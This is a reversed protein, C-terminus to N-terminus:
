RGGFTVRVGARATLPLAPYGFSQEYDQDLLNEIALYGRVAGTVQYSASFDVKQYAAALDHNPLLLSNGFFQDSAFTSDDRKGALYASLALQLRSPAYAVMVSGANTPIRFPRQGVLPAYAGIGIGPFASNFSATASFAKTVEANVRTYSAMVRLKTAWAAEFSAEVGQARYSQSNVTAGFPTANAVAAPVGVRPLITKGLFEILDDFTNHFYSVRVRAAGRAFGQEIGVDASHSREPGIASVSAALPTGKVLELLSFQQDSVSPAKIGSGANFVVKTDNGRTAAPDRLYVAASVRPTVAEGFVANHEVGVGGTVYSRNAVSIRAEAFAGGNNRTVVPNNSQDLCGVTTTCSEGQEREYRGGGSLTLWQALDLSTQGAIVRRTARSEYPAPFTGGYDLIARGTATYGNAGHLTVLRGIYNVGFGPDFPEGTPAPNVFRYAQDSSGFRVSAQWRNSIQSQATVTAYTLANKQSSDDAIGFFSFANASGYKADTRRITGSIDTGRGLAVGFRGAYTGNRYGNNPLDNDTRFHSYESYYDFRRVIGGVSGDTSLTNLNGGDISYSAEPIRTRGRKTTIAVVGALADSGYMVSNTQRLVEVRDVGATSLQAFDFAGGIDNVALGDVLVKNFDSAGGRIDLSASGGRAGNQQVQVGPVTRLAEIVDPTNLADLMAADIVTVPAGTQASPLASAAATVVVAQEIAGIQLTADISASPGAYVSESRYTAFGSMSVVVRYRGRPLDRLAYSGDGGSVTQREFGNDGSVTVTAGAIVGGHSDTVKGSVSATDTTPPQHNTTPQQLSAMLLQQAATPDAVALSVLSLFVISVLSRLRARGTGAFCTRTM